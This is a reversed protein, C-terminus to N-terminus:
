ILELFIQGFLHKFKLPLSILTPEQAEYECIDITSPELIHHTISQVNLWCIKEEGFPKKDNLLMDKLPKYTFFDNKQMRIVSIKEGNITVNSIINYWDNTTFINKADNRQKEIAKFCHDCSNLSHGTLFNKQEIVQLESCENALFNKLMLCIKINRTQKEHPDSCLIVENSNEPLNKLLHKYLCSGIEASGRLAITEDWVYLFSKKKGEDYICLQNCWM